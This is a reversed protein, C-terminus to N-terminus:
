VYHNSSASIGPFRRKGIMIDIFIKEKSKPFSPCFNCKNFIAKFYIEGLHVYVKRLLVDGDNCCIASLINGSNM